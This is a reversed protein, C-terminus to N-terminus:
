LYYLFIPVSVPFAVALAILGGLLAWDFWPPAAPPADLRRLVEPWLDRVPDADSSARPLARRLLVEWADQDHNADHDSRNM